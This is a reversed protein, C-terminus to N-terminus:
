STPEREKDTVAFEITISGTHNVEQELKDGYKRPMTSKLVRWITDIQLRARQCATNDSTVGKKTTLGRPGEVTETWSHFDRSTDNAIELVEHEKVECYDEKAGILKPIFDPNERKFKTWTRWAPTNDQKFFSFETGGEAVWTLINELIEPTFVTPRGRGKKKESVRSIIFGQIQYALLIRGM